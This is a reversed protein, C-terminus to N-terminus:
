DKLIKETTIVKGRSDTIKLFYVGKSHNDLGNFLLRNGGKNASVEIETVKGIVDIVKISYTEEKEATFEIYLDGGTPNPYIVFDQSYKQKVSIVSSLSSEGDHDVQKLRYYTTTALPSGDFFEYSLESNSNGAGKIEGIKEFNEGDSSAEVDFHDNNVETTTIWTLENGNEKAEGEFTILEVPLPTCVTPTSSVLADWGARNVVSTAWFEFTMCQSTSCFYLVNSGIGCDGMPNDLGTSSNDYMVTAGTSAGDYIKMWDWGSTTNWMAFERFDAVIYEGAAACITVTTFCNCNCYNGTSVAADACPDGGPGGDDYFTITSGANMNYTINSCATPILTPGSSCPPCPGGCDVGTEGQNQVGDFCSPCSTCTITTTCCGTATGCSSNTNYHVFHDGNTTATWSLPASGQAVIPGNYTGSRVTIYGGCDIDSIYTEGAVVNSITNYETQYNCTSITTTTGNTPATASGYSSTNVCGSTSSCSTCTITTTCCGTTTGCSSNTNYHIFHDGNVTATWTLPANGSAVVPGNYTGSRVTIYGGCDIDSVYTEGAVM